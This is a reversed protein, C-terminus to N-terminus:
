DTPDATCPAANCVDILTDDFLFAAKQRRADADARPDEHPDRGISPPVNGIPVPGSGSDWVVIGSGKSPYSTSTLGWGPDVEGSRAAATVPRHITLGLTRAEIMATLESVQWDGFAVHLLM